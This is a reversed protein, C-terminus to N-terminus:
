KNRIMDKEYSILKDVIMINHKNIVLDLILFSIILSYFGIDKLTQTSFIDLIDNSSSENELYENLRKM